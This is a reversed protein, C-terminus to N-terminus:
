CRPPPIGSRNRHCGSFPSTMNESTFLSFSRNLSVCLSQICTKVPAPIFTSSQLATALSTLVCRQYLIDTLFHVTRGDEQQLLTILTCLLWRDCCPKVMRVAMTRSGRAWIGEVLVQGYSFEEELAQVLWYVWHFSLPPLFLRHGSTTPHQSSTYRPSTLLIWRFQSPRLHPLLPTALQM